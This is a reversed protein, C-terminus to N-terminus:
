VKMRRIEAEQTALIVPTLWGRGAEMYMKSYLRVKSFAGCKLVHTLPFWSGRLIVYGLFDLPFCDIQGLLRTGLGLILPRGLKVKSV